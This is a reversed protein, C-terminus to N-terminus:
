GLEIKSGESTKVVQIRTPFAEKLEEIHTIVLVRRFDDQIASIAELLRERGSADQTGFGEDIVVTQLQAGARRSLLKSLAIRIAFNVRFAEGGSYLEYNRTGLEDAIKIDLTERLVGSKLERQTDFRVTMSGGTMRGLLRNATEEVEPVAAEIIMAPVGQKGFALQLEDHISIREVLIELKSARDDRRESLGDLAALKQRASAAREIAVRHESRLTELNHQRGDALRLQSEYTRAEVELNHLQTRDQSLTDQWRQQRKQLGDLAQNADVASSMAGSLETLKRQLGVKKKLDKELEALSDDLTKVHAVVEHHHKRQESYYGRLSDLDNQLDQILQVRATEELANGCTPCIPDIATELVGIRQKIPEAQAILTQSEGQLRAAKEAAVAREDAFRKRDAEREEIKELESQTRVHMTLLAENDGKTRIAALEGEVEELEKEGQKLREGLDSISRRSHQLSHRAQEVDSMDKEAARLRELVQQLASEGESLEQSYEDRRELESNISVIEQELVGVEATIAVTRERVRQEFLTWKELGLISSLVAKREGASKVTFEDARGQAIFASNIFTDYDIHLLEDIKRQTQRITAESLGRWSQTDLDYLKLALMSQGRKGSKRQRMVQYLQGSLEFTFAVRMESEGFHILEDDSRKGDRARAWLAWVMAELLASKGAGNDGSLCAVHIGSFDLPDPNRYPMFNTIELKTPIM